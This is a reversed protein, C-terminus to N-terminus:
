RPCPRRHDFLSIQRLNRTPAPDPAVDADGDTAKEFDPEGCIINFINEFIGKFARQRFRKLAAKGNSLHPALALGDPRDAVGGAFLGPQENPLPQPRRAQGPSGTRSPRFARRDM